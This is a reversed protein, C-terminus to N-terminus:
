FLHEWAEELQKENAFTKLPFSVVPAREEYRHEALKSGATMGTELPQFGLM